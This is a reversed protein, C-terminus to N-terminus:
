SYSGLATLLKRAYHASIKGNSKLDYMRFMKTISASETASIRNLVPLKLANVGSM